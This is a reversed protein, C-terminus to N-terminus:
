GVYHWREVPKYTNEAKTKVCVVLGSDQLDSLIEKRHRSNNLYRTHQTLRSQSIGGKGSDRILREVKKSLRENQNDSLNQNISVIAQITLFRVLECGYQAYELEIKDKGDGVAVILAIKKAYETVRVWMSSTVTRADILKTCEDELNEFCIFSEDSYRLTIPDPHGTVPIINGRKSSIPTDRFKLAQDILSAPFKDLMPPRGRPPRKDATQFILFRNMSGDRIKGTNLGEWYTDPTSTSFVSLCPQDISFREDEQAARDLPYYYGTSSTFVEMLTSIIDAQYGTTTAMLQKLYM